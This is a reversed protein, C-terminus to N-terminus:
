IFLIQKMKNKLKVAYEGDEAYVESLLKIYDEENTIKRAYAAQWIAYDRLCDQWDNYVAHNFEEGIATTPRTKAVRMGLCNNNNNWINSKFDGSELVCQAYVVRPFKLNLNKIEKKLKEETFNQEGLYILVPIKEITQNFNVTSTFGLSIFLFGVLITSTLYSSLSIREFELTEKNYCWLQKGLVFRNFIDKM